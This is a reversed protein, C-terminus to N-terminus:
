STKCDLRLTPSIYPVFCFPYIDPVLLNKVKEFRLSSDEYTTFLLAGVEGMMSMAKKGVTRIYTVRILWFSFGSVAGKREHRRLGVLQRM